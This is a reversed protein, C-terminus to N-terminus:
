RRCTCILHINYYRCNRDFLAFILGNMLM